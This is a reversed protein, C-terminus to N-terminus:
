PTGATTPAWSRSGLSSVPRPGFPGACRDRDHRAPRPRPLPGRTLGAAAPAGNGPGSCHVLGETSRSAPTLLGDAADWDARPCIHLIVPGGECRVAPSPATLPVTRAPPAGRAPAGVPWLPTM